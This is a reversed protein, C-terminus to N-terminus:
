RRKAKLSQRLVLEKGCPFNHVTKREEKGKAEVERLPNKLSAGVISLARLIEMLV